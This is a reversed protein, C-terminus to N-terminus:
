ASVSRQLGQGNLGNFRGIAFPALDLNPATGTVLEAIIRGTMPAMSMGYHSHGFAAFLGPRGPIAGICPLSDPLSPRTGMWEAAAETNLGPLMRKTLREFIRARRYDPPADLGAFEATGASRLGTEMSSTVFMAGAEMVSHTLRVGPERFELHYGREPELPLKIGLPALLPISWAGAAMVVQRAELDGQDTTLRWGGGERPVLGHVATRAVEGGGRRVQEALVAGLRGPSAARAQDKILIAARYDPSLDPEIERLEGGSVVALPAGHRERLRWALGSLDAEAAKRYAHVYWSDRLLDEHGTGALYRRYLEISPRNLAAMAAAIAGVRDRRGARLFRLAWPAAKLLYGPRIAVPGEPDLLWKPISKWLGPLSQPICSWPSIVGANGYSTAQGPAGRDLLRVELGKEILSLACCIGAIGAGVVTVKRDDSSPAPATM